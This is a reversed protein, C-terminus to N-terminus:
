QAIALHKALELETVLGLYREGDSVVVYPTVSENMKQRAEELTATADVMPFHRQMAGAVYGAPGEHGAARLLAERAVVGLLRGYHMVAFASQGSSLMAKVADQVSTSPGLVLAHPNVAGGARVEQLVAGARQDAAERGAGFFVVTAIIALMFQGTFVGIGLMAVALVRAVFAAIRTAKGFGLRYTLVARLVRGGDMPLAPVMNFVALVINSGLMLALLTHVTPTSKGVELLASKLGDGGLWFLGMVFFAAALVVNVLPGAISILLEATPTQPRSGLQAVGGFPWLTIERVPIGYGQAVLAHGLEHLTVCAFLMVTSFIGFLVGRTGFASGWQMGGLALVLLFSIHVKIDIGRVTGLRLATFV